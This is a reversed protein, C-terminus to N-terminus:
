KDKVLPFYDFAWDRKIKDGWFYCSKAIDYIKGRGNLLRIIRIMKVYLEDRNCQLLRRFRLESVPPRSLSTAMAMQVVFKEDSMEKIHSLLGLIMAFREKWGNEGEFFTNFKNCAIHFSPLMIVDEINKTRRFEARVGKNDKLDEWWNKLAKGLDSDKCFNITM